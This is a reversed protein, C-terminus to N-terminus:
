LRIGLHEAQAVIEKEEASLKALQRELQELELERKAVPPGARSWDQEALARRVGAKLADGFMWCLAAHITAPDGRSVNRRGFVPLSNFENWVTLGHRPDEDTLMALGEVYWSASRDMLSFVREVVDDLCLPASKLFAIRSQCSDIEDRLGRVRASIEALSEQLGLFGKAAGSVRRAADIIPNASM